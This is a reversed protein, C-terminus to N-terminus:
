TMDQLIEGQMEFGDETPMAQGFVRVRSNVEAQVPEAFVVNIKGTGDDIVVVNDKQDIVLGVIRLRVDNKEIESIKKEISAQRRQPTSAEPTESM